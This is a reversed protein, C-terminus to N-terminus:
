GAPADMEAPLGGARAVLEALDDPLPSRLALAEGTVPHRLDLAWAHLALRPALRAAAGGHRRDGALPHAAAAAHVRVQHTRGTLLEAEILALGEGRALRRWRTRAPRGAVPADWEGSDGPDGVVVALYRRKISGDRFGNAVSKNASRALTFLVLGSAPTDLRHHLGVYAERAALMAYLNPGPRRGAQTPLGAPKDVVLLWRDRYREVPAPLDRPPAAATRVEVLAGAPVRHAPHDVAVGDVRVGGRGIAARARKRSLSTSEAVLKDIRDARPAVFRARM